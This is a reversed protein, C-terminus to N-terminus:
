DLDFEDDDTADGVPPEVLSFPWEAKPFQSKLQGNDAIGYGIANGKYTVIYQGPYDVEITMPERNVFKELEALDPLDIVM